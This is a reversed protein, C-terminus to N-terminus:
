TSTVPRLDHVPVLGTDGDEYVMVVSVGVRAWCAAYDRGDFHGAAARFLAGKGGKREIIALVAQNVCPRDTTVVWDQGQRAIQDARCPAALLLTVVPLLRLRM